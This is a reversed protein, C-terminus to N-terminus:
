LRVMPLPSWPHTRLRRLGLQVLRRHFGANAWTGQVRRIFARSVGFTLTGRSVDVWDARRFTEVLVGQDGRYRSVKHHERIMAAVERTWGTCRVRELHTLALDVSPELYDFTRATWIGLDHFVAAVAIKELTEPGPESLQALCCNAVRYAHNRYGDFDAALAERHVRLVDDITPIRSVLVDGRTRSAHAM